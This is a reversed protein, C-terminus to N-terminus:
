KIKGKARWQALIEERAAGLAGGNRARAQRIADATWEKQRSTAPQDTGLTPNGQTAAKMAALAAEAEQIATSTTPAAQAAPTPSTPGLRDFHASYLDHDRNADLWEGFAQRKDAEVAGMANTYERKFFDRVAPKKFGRELLHLEQGHGTKISELQGTMAEFKGQLEQLQAVAADRETTATSAKASVEDFRFKPITPGDAAPTHTTTTVGNTVGNTTEQQEAM